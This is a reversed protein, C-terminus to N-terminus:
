HDRITIGVPAHDSGLVEAAIFASEISGVIAQSALVYDIRWGINRARAGARYSWWTYCEPKNPYFKRFTDIGFFNLLNAIGAREEDTFGASFHNGNPYSLDIEERAVNMDGCVIVPKQERLELLFKLMEVDWIEHRFQLRRLEAGSNPTYVNVVFFKGFDAVMVRGESIETLEDLRTNCNVAIPQIKSFIATGSYGKRKAPNFFQYYDPLDIPPISLADAKIEQLCLVTPDLHHVSAAFNKKLIARLGNVNWSIIRMAEM